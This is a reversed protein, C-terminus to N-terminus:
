VRLGNHWVNDFAKELDLFTAVVHEGRNFSEMISQSLRFLHDDTSKARRFGSQHKSIFGIHELHSRLRQEIVKEFLKVISSILSIPRYSTTFYPPKDPKLLMRLTAIKWATPIYGLQISSTFLRALHHYLSTTTGLRLVENDPGPAKGRKLFKVLKILTQADVDDVLEHENGVDFRYDDPDEPPYFYRHNDEVFKNVEHFHNSDFHDSEIVFHREVSEAFLQAKDTNTNAVKSAHRLTPYDHQGKPKLFNKIKRWSENSDTELSISNCFKEWSVLSEVQLEEKVQKQLQNICTKIALDKKQSHQRRLRRKEKILALTEDSIPNSEPRVSESEPITKDVATSIVTVIFDAYKDM